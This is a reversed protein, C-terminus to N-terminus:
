IGADDNGMDRWLAQCEPVLASQPPMQPLFVGVESLIAGDMVLGERLLTEQVASPRRTQIHQPAPVTVRYRTKPALGPLCAPAPLRVSPWDRQAVLYIGTGGDHRTVGRNVRTASDEGFLAVGAHLVPRLRKHLAVWQRLQDREGADLHLPDLELGLHGFLVIAARFDLSTERKDLWNLSASIHCGTVEPSLVHWAQGQICLRDVAATNDSTWVRQTHAIAGWDARGAVKSRWRRTRPTWGTGCPM